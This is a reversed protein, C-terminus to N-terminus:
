ICELHMDQIHLICVNLLLLIVLYFLIIEKISSGFLAKDM